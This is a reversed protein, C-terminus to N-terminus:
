KGLMESRKAADTETATAEGGNKEVKLGARRWEILGGQFWKVGDANKMMLRKAMARAPASAPDDGYVIIYKYGDFVPNLKDGTKARESNVGLNQAGPLHGANFDSAARPDVLMVKSSEKGELLTRTQSLSIIEIDKDSVDTQCGAM